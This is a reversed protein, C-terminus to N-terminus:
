QQTRQQATVGGFLDVFTLHWTVNNLRPTNLRSGLQPDRPTVKFSHLSWIAKSEVLFKKVKSIPRKTALDPVFNLIKPVQLFLDSKQKERKYHDSQYFPQQGAQLAGPLVVIAGSNLFLRALDKASTVHVESSSTAM